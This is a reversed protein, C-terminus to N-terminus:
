DSGTLGKEKLEAHAEDFKDDADQKRGWSVLERMGEEFSVEPEFDLLREAKSTDAYCHRIDGARFDNAVTPSLEDDRGYLDILTRAIKEITQPNGTSVNIAHGDANTREIAAQNARAIDSVHIFDRTQQGDEFILPPNDNKIRSSFIACVGTYPNDLSQRSGYINFYRLAVVPLGYARGIALSMEEQDKKTIAYISNSDLPKSEPTPVPDLISDCDPCSLEWEGREFQADSRLPPNKINNCDPCRYQGEGYIAMSSAVVFKELDIDENVIIDLLRATGLTNVDVYKEVDYMSQGVGVAGAQHSVVDVGELLTTVTDRDRIDSWVYEAENNLYDPEGDHVQDSLNDLIVVEYGQDVLRDVLHSGVFGAGGTVLVRTSM